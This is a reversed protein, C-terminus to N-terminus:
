TKTEVIAASSYSQTPSKNYHTQTPEKPRPDRPLFCRYPHRPATRQYHSLPLRLHM